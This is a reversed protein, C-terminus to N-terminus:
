TPVVENATEDVPEARWAAIEADLATRQDATLSAGLGAALEGAQTDGNQAALSYWYYARGGDQYSAPTDDSPHYIAGLNYQSDVLGRNAALEFWGIAENSDAPGGDGRATMVGIRHMALVNGGNASRRFWVRAQGLDQEVGQGTKYFEGLQLQAPPYGLLASEQLSQIADATQADTTANSLAATATQYLDQPNTTTPEPVTPLAAGTQTQTDPTELRTPAAARPDEPKFLLDKVLFFVAALALIIGAALALTVPRTGSGEKLNQFATRTSAEETATLDDAHRDSKLDSEVSSVDAQKAEDTKTDSDNTDDDDDDKNPLFRNKLGAFTSALKALPGTKESMDDLDDDLKDVADEVPPTKAELAAKAELAKKAKLKRKAKAALIARQKPTLKKRTLKGDNGEAARKAAAERAKRRAAKLYDEPAESEDGAIDDAQGDPIAKSVQPPLAQGLLQAATNDEATEDANDALDDLDALIADLEDNESTASDQEPTALAKPKAAPEDLDDEFDFSFDDEVEDNAPPTGLTEEALTEEGLTEEDLTQAFAFPDEDETEAPAPDTVNQTLAVTETNEDLDEGFGGGLGEIALDSDDTDIDSLEDVISELAAEAEDTEAIEENTLDIEPALPATIASQRQTQGAESRAINLTELRSIMEEFSGQLEAIRADTEKQAQTLSAEFAAFQSSHAGESSMEERVLSITEAVKQIGEASRREAADVQENVRDITTELQKIQDGGRKVEDGLIRLRNGTSSVFEPDASIEAAQKLQAAENAIKEARAIRASLGDVTDKLFNVGSGDAETGGDVREALQQIQQEASALREQSAKQATDFQVAVQSVARELAKLANVRQRDGGTDEIRAIRDNLDDYTGEAPKVRELLQLREVAGGITRNIEDVLDANKSDVETLRKHLHEIATVLDRVRLGEIEGTSEQPEGATYIMQNLWEGVTLGERKAAEKATERADREIGKVSWPANSKM